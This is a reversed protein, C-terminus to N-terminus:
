LESIMGGIAEEIFGYGLKTKNGLGVQMIFKLVDNDASILFYIMFAPLKVNKFGVIKRKIKIIKLFRVNPEKGKAKLYKSKINRLVSDSIEEIDESYLYHNNEKLIAPSRTKLMLLESSPEVKRIRLSYIEFKHDFLNIKKNEELLDRLSFILKDNESSIFFLYREGVFGNKSFKRKGGPM